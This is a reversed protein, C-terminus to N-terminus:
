QLSRMWYWDALLGEFGLAFGKIRAGQLSLDEDAYSDPLAPRHKETFNSLVYILGFGVIVAAISILLQKSNKNM